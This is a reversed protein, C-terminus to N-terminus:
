RLLRAHEDAEGVRQDTMVALHHPRRHGVIEIELAFEGDDDALGAAVDFGFAREVM